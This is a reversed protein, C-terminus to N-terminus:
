LGHPASSHRVFAKCLSGDMCGPRCEEWKEVRLTQIAPRPVFASSIAGAHTRERLATRGWGWRCAAVVFLVYVPVHPASNTFYTPGQQSIEHCGMNLRASPGLSVIFFSFEAFVSQHIFM